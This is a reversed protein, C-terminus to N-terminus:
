DVELLRSREGSFPKKGEDRKASPTPKGVDASARRQRRAPADLTFTQDGITLLVSDGEVRFYELEPVDFRAKLNTILRAFGIPERAPPPVLSPDVDLAATGEIVYIKILDSLLELLEEPGVASLSRAIDERVRRNTSGNV